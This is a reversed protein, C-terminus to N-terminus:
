SGLIQFNEKVLIEIIKKEGRINLICPINNNKEIKELWDRLTLTCVELYEFTLISQIGYDYLPMTVDIIANYKNKVWAHRVAVKNIGDTSLVYGICGVYNSKKDELVLHGLAKFANNYCESENFLGKYKECIYISDGLSIRNTQLSTM